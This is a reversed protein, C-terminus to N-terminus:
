LKGKLEVKRVDGTVDELEVLLMGEAVDEGEDEGDEDMEFVWKARGARPSRVELEMKMQKVFAVVQNEAIDEGETVLVEILKGSLPLIIHHPNSPDGRCHSSSTLASASTTTAALQLHYPVPTKSDPTTYEIEASLSSPFDNRLVRSLLLHHPIITPQPSAPKTQQRSKSEEIPELTISWADGKRFLLASAPAASSIEQSPQLSSTFSNNQTHDTINRGTTLLTQTNAELWQTDVKGDLFDKHSVIGRLLDINTAVGAVRTNALARQAKRVAADWSNATVIIKALLNDFDAGVIMSPTVHSDVRVSNGRPMTFEAIKGISLAFNAHPDESCLRLQISFKTSPPLDEEIDPRKKGLALEQLPYGSALLLQTQVLDVDTISETVTHEVQLRPNIELFYFESTQENVLFEFTGLSLYQIQLRTLLM